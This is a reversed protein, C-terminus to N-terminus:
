FIWRVPYFLLAAVAASCPITLLWGTVITRAVGWRV